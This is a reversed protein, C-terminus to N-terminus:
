LMVGDKQTRVNLQYRVDAYSQTRLAHGDEWVPELLSQAPDDPQVQDELRLRGYGDKYVRLFGRASRKTGSDTIPDKFLERWVGQVKAATAKMAFGYTDRTCYAYTYSGIGLVVNTSDFGKAALRECIERAREYTISDGYIAGIHPNLVKYGAANTTGGFIDWLCQIVGRQQAYDSRTSDFDSTCTGCLIDVPDGSDPRIVLKGDREFIPLYQTIVKWLDWTDSVVSVIGQPYLTSLRVLTGLEDAQGGACMVSHETAPVSGIVLGNDGPYFREVWELLPFSDSGTFSLAHGAASAMADGFGGMGRMSFDHAQWDVGEISGTTALAWADLLQRYRYATTASTCARWLTNSLLTEWYNPLWYFDDHTNEVTFQPVRLPTLTGEPLASFRLPMYGLEHLAGIHKTGIENGPMYADLYRQYEKCVEDRPRWLWRQFEEEMYKKLFYQLGFFVVLESGEVRSSRPTWNSYVRQTGPPYQRRHDLKYGDTKLMVNSM